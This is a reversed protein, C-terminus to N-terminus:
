ARRCVAEGWGARSWGSRGCRRARRTEASSTPLAVGKQNMYRPTLLNLRASTHDVDLLPQDPNSVRLRYKSEYYHQFTDYLEPSPFASRPSLDERIEAVYFYQLSCM